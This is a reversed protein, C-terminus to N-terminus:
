EEGIWHPFVADNPHESSRLAGCVAPCLWTVGAGPSPSSGSAGPAANVLPAQKSRPLHWEVKQWPSSRSRCGRLTHAFPYSVLRVRTHSTGGQHEALLGLCRGSWHTRWRWAPRGKPSEFVESVGSDARITGDAPWRCLLGREGLEESGVSSSAPPKLSRPFFQFRPM